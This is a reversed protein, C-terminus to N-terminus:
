KGKEYVASFYERASTAEQKGLYNIRYIKSITIMVKDGNKIAKQFEALEGTQIEPKTFIKKAVTSTDREILVEISKVVFRSDTPAYALFSEDTDPKISITNLSSIRVDRGLETGNILCKFHPQPVHKVDLNVATKSGNTTVVTLVVTTSDPVVPLENTNKNALIKGGKISILGGPKYNEVLRKLDIKTVCGRYLDPPYPPESKPTQAYAALSILIGITSIFLAHITKVRRSTM